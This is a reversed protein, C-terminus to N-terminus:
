YKTAACNARASSTISHDAPAPEYRQEAACRRPRVKERDSRIAAACSRVPLVVQCLLTQNGFMLEATM